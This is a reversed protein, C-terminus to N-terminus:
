EKEEQVNRLVTYYSFSLQILALFTEKSIVYFPGGVLKLPKQARMIVIEVSKKWFKPKNVWDSEYCSDAVELSLTTLRSGVSCFLYVQLATAIFFDAQVWIQNGGGEMKSAEFAFTCLAMMTNFFQVLMIPSYIDNIVEAISLIQQHHRICSSFEKYNNSKGVKSLTLILIELQGCVLTSIALFLVDTAAHAWAHVIAGTAQLFYVLEYAPSDRTDVFPWDGFPLFKLTMFMEESKTQNASEDTHLETINVNDNFLPKETETKPIPVKMGNLSLAFLVGHHSIYMLYTVWGVSLNRVKKRTAELIQRWSDSDDKAAVFGLKFCRTFSRILDQIDKRYVVIRSWKYLSVFYGCVFGVCVPLRNMDNRVSIGLALFSLWFAFIIVTLIYSLGLIIYNSAPWMGVVSLVWFNFRLHSASNLEEM